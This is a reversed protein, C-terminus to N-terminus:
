YGSLDRDDHFLTIEKNCIKCHGSISTEIYNSGFKDKKVKTFVNNLVFNENPLFVNYNNDLSKKILEEDIIIDDEIPNIKTIGLITKCNCIEEKSELNGLDKYEDENFHM